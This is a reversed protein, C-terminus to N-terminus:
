YISDDEDGLMALVTKVISGSTEKIAVLDQEKEILQDFVKQKDNILDRMFADITGRAYMQYINISEHNSGIRHARDQAQMHDAPTWSYDLFIVNAAATLTLGVGASKIGGLFVNTQSYNQFEKVMEAREELPTDGTLMVSNTFFKEHLLALPTKFSSFVIVKEGSAIINEILEVAAEVKGMSTIERLVNLQVLKEAQMAKRAEADKKGKNEKLYSLLNSSAKRYQTMYTAPMEIPTPIFVKPPLNPLVEEKTRRMFYRSIKGKLEEINTAGDAEFGFRGYTGGCYRVAYQMYNAWEGPSLMRLLTYLEVPRSLVPTGTLQTVSPVHKALLMAAKTRKAKPNKLYHAEDFAMARIDAELLEKVHKVLIDYNIIWTDYEGPIEKIDTKSEIVFPKRDSWKKVEAEWTYKMSAPCVVLARPVNKVLLYGIYQISKGLGQTDALLANGNNRVLFEVGLKQYPYMEGKLNPIEIASDTSNKIVEVDRAVNAKEVAADITEAISQSVSPDVVVNPFRKVLEELVEPKSFVWVKKEENWSFEQWGFSDKLMRCFQVHEPNYEFEFAFKHYKTKVSRINM